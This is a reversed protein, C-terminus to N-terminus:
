TALPLPQWGTPWKSWHTTHWPMAAQSVWTPMSPQGSKLRAPAMQFPAPVATFTLQHSIITFLFNSSQQVTPHLQRGARSSGHPAPTWSQKVAQPPSSARVNEPTSSINNKGTLASKTHSVPGEKGKRNPGQLSHTTQKKKKEQSSQKEKGAKREYSSQRLM